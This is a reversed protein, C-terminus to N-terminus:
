YQTYHPKQSGCSLGLQLYVTTTALFIIISKKLYQVKDVKTHKSPSEEIETPHSLPAGEKPASTSIGHKYFHKEYGIIDRTECAQLSLRLINYFQNAYALCNALRRSYLIEEVFMNNMLYEKTRKIFASSLKNKKVGLSKNVDLFSAYNNKELATLAVEVVKPPTSGTTTLVVITATLAIALNSFSSELLAGVYNRVALACPFAVMKLTCTGPFATAIDTGTEFKCNTTDLFIKDM